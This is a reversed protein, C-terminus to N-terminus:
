LNCGNLQSPGEKKIWIQNEREEKGAKIKQLPSLAIKQHSEQVHRIPDWGYQPDMIFRGM